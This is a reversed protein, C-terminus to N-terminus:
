VSWGRMIVATVIAAYYACSFATEDKWLRLSRLTITTKQCSKRERKKYTKTIISCKHQAGRSSRHAAAAIVGLTQIKM